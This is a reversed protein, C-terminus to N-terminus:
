LAGRVGISPLIPLSRIASPQTYDYGYTVTAVSDNLYVNQVDLFATMSTPGWTWAYDVRLDLQHHLPARASNPAGYTPMYLNRDSDLVAGTAPTYPLGSYLQFRGGLQWRGRHWSAAANLSHPQDFSFPRSVDGPHDVRTSRSYSYGLWGFWPGGRYSALLEGGLSTGRGTNALAGDMEDRALLRSRDTYYASAQLRAGERPEYALSAIHQTSREADLAAQLLESQYEPPRAFAGSSLRATVTPTLKIELKARPQVAVEGSRTFQDTRLGLTLRIAPDMDAAVSAWQALDPVWFTGRYQLSVDHPDYAAVPEGERDERQTALDATYRGVQAEAGARVEVNSLGIATAMTRTVEARPTVAPLVASVRQDAGAENVFKPIMGSLALKATWPGDHFTASGTVRAFATHGYFRKSRESTDKTTYIELTDTAAAGSLALTWRPGLRHDLRFQGDYYNPVTTLSLDLDSPLLSPLVLDVMSRRFAVIYRTDKGAPGQALVGGDILSLEAQAHRREDGARTTVAVIGSSARGFGVDFGGPVYDLSQVTEIPLVSRIGINHILIPIEFDDLLVKSDQPSAGRIVVGSYGLPGQSNVIGPMVTLARVVDGGTGPVRHLEERDLSAAGPATLPAAGRIEVTEGAGVERLAVELSEGTVLAIGVEHDDAEIVLTAGVPATIAFRGDRDTVVGTPNNEVSVLAGALPRGATDVVRGTATAATSPTTSASVDAPQARVPPALAVPLALVAVLLTRSM